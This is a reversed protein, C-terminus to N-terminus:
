MDFGHGSGHSVVPKVGVESVSESTVDAAAPLSVDSGSTEHCFCESPNGYFNSTRARKSPGGDRFEHDTRIREAITEWPLASRQALLAALKRHHPEITKKFGDYM